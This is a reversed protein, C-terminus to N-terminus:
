FEFSSLPKETNLGFMQPNEGVIGAAFFRVVRDVQDGKVVGSKVMKFFDRRALPDPALTAIRTRMQGAESLPDGFCAIAYMFDDTSEFTSVLAKTYDAAIEASRKPDKLTQDSEGSTFYGQSQALAAPMQWLGVGAGTANANFKSRSMALVYGLLPDLGRDRFAKNIERRYLLARDSYGNLRYENARLRILSVFDRDFTYGSKRSIQGALRDAMGGIDLPGVESSIPTPQTDAQGESSNSTNSEPATGGDFALLVTDPSIIKNGNQDEVTVSLIHNGRGLSRLQAPDLTVDYPSTEAKAVETGDIQYTVTEICKAGEVEVQVAVPGHITIGTQPSVIRISPKCEVNRSFFILIAVLATLALGGGVGALILTTSPGAAPQNALAVQQVGTSISPSPVSQAAQYVSPLQAPDGKSSDRATATDGGYEEQRSEWPADSVHVEILTSGGICILDGDSLEREIDVREDNVTTGNSSGLDVIWFTDTRREIEAHYRSVNTDAELCITNDLARGITVLQDTLELEWSAYGPQIVTLKAFTM